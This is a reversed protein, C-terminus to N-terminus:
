NKREEESNQTIEIVKIGIDTLVDFPVENVAGRTFKQEKGDSDVYGRWDLLGYRVAAMIGKGTFRKREPDYHDNIVELYEPQTLPRLKFEAPTEGEAQGEPKFWIPSGVAVAKISM